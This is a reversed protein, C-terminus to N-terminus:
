IRYYKGFITFFKHSRFESKSIGASENIESFGVSRIMDDYIEMFDGNEFDINYPTAPYSIGNVKLNIKQIKFNEFAFPNKKYNGTYAQHDVFAVIIQHPIVGRICNSWTFSSIERVCLYSRIKTQTFPIFAPSSSGLGVAKAQTNFSEQAQVLRFRMNLKKIRFAAKKGDSMLFFDDKAKHIKLKINIGPFLYIPSKFADINLNIAFYGKNYNDSELLKRRKDLAGSETRKYKDYNDDDNVWYSGSFDFEKKHNSYSLCNEIFSKYAYSQTSQDIVNKDNFFLEISSIWSHGINNVFSVDVANNILEGSVTDVLHFEGFLRSLNLVKHFSSDGALSFEYPGNESIGGTPSVYVDNGTVLSPDVQIRNHLNLASSSLEIPETNLNGIGVSSAM